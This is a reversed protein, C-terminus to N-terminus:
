VCCVGNTNPRQGGGEGERHLVAHEGTTCTNCTFTSLDFSTSINQKATYNHRLNVSVPFYEDNTMFSSLGDYLKDACGSQTRVSRLTQRASRINFYVKPLSKHEGPRITGSTSAASATSATRDRTDQKGPPPLPPPAMQSTAPPPMTAHSDTPPTRVALSESGGPSAGAGAEASAGAGTGPATTAGEGSGPGVGPGAETEMAEEDDDGIMKQITKPSMDTMDDGTEPESDIYDPLTEVTSKSMEAFFSFQNYTTQNNLTQVLIFAWYNHGTILAPWHSRYIGGTLPVPIQYRYKDGAFYEGTGTASVPSKKQEPLSAEWGSAQKQYV